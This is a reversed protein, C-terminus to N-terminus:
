PIPAQKYMLSLYAVTTYMDQATRERCLLFLRCFFSGIMVVNNSM